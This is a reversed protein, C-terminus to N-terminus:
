GLYFIRSYFRSQLLGERVVSAGGSLVFKENGIGIKEVTIVEGIVDGEGILVGAVVDLIDVDTDTEAKVKIVDTRGLRGDVSGFRM